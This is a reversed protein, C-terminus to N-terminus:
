RTPTAAPGWRLGWGYVQDLAHQYGEVYRLDPRIEVRRETFTLHVVGCARVATGPFFVEIQESGGQPLYMTLIGRVPATPPALPSLSYVYVYVLARRIESSHELNIYVNEGAASGVRDDASDHEIYPPHEFRGFLGGKAQVSGKAGSNMEYLCGLDCDVTVIASAMPPAELRRPTLLGRLGTPKASEAAALDWQHHFRLTGGSSADITRTRPPV